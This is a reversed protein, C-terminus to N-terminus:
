VRNFFKTSTFYIKYPPIIITEICEFDYGASKKTKREPLKFDPEKTEFGTSIVRNVYEFKRM